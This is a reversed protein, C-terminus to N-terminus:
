REQDPLGNKIYYEILNQLVKSESRIEKSCRKEFAEKTADDVKAGVMRVKKMIKDGTLSEPRTVIM